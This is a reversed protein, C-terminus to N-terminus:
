KTYFSVGENKWGRGGLVKVENKDSTYLHVRLGKNYLRYVPKKGGSYWAIGESRWAGTKVLADREKANTTYLHERMVKGYLRYVPKGKSVTRFKEGEFKWGRTTLVSAEDLNQTYLHRKIGSNYLRYTRYKQDKTKYSAVNITTPKNGKAINIMEVSDGMIRRGQNYVFDSVEGTRPNKKRGVEYTNIAIIQNKSNLIGAGSQGPEMDLTYLLNKGSKATVKDFMTYMYGVKSETRTPYGPIQVREGVKQTTSVNLYGVRSDVNRSLKVVGMDHDESLKGSTTKHRRLLYYNSASYRGYPASGKSFGPAAVISKAWGGLEKQYLNHGATLVLNPSVMVGTGVGSTGNPFEILLVVTQRYPTVKTNKVRYQNDKGIIGELVSDPDSVTTAETTVSTVLETSTSETQAPIVSSIAQTSSESTAVSTEIETSIPLTTSPSSVSTEVATSIAETSTTSENAFVLGPAMSGVILTVLFASSLSKRYKM